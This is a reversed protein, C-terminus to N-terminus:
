TSGGAGGCFSLGGGCACGGVAVTPDFGLEGTMGLIEKPMDGVMIPTKVEDDFYRSSVRMEPPIPVGAARLADPALYTKGAELRQEVPMARVQRMADVFGPHTIINIMEDSKLKMTAPDLEEVVKQTEPTVPM